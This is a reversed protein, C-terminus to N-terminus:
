PVVGVRYFRQPLSAANSDVISLIGGTGAVNNTLNTWESAALDNKYEIRHKANPVSRFSIRVDPGTRELGTIQQLVSYIWACNASIRTSFFASPIDDVQNTIYTWSTGEGIYLGGMDFLAADFVTGNAANSFSGSVSYNIGALKWTTGDQIFVAGGSDGVSLHAENPAAGRDFTAVIMEGLGAGEDTIAFVDNEGWRKVSDGTGWKWGKSESAVIVEDGRQTGRGFVVLHKGVENTATYLPAYAPFTEAVQWLCLDSNPDRFSAIAHYTSGNLIFEQENSGGVHKATIFFNPAIATGLFYSWRGEYQWGSNTLSGTPATTNHNTDATSYFLVAGAPM